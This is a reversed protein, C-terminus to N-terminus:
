LKYIKIIVTVFSIFIIIIIACIITVILSYSFHVASRHVIAFLVSSQRKMLSVEDDHYEMLDRMLLSGKDQSEM